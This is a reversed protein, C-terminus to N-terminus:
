TIASWDVSGGGSSDNFEEAKIIRGYRDVTIELGKDAGGLRFVNAYFAPLTYQANGEADISKIIAQSQNTKNSM